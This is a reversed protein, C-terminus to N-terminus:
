SPHRPRERGVLQGDLRGGSETALEAVELEVQGEVIARHAVEEPFEDGIWPSSPVARPDTPANTSMVSRLSAWASASDSARKGRSFGSGTTRRVRSSVIRYALSAM